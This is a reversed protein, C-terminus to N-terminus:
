AVDSFIPNSIDPIAFPAFHNLTFPALVMFLKASGSYVKFALKKYSFYGYKDFVSSSFIASALSFIRSPCSLPIKITALSTTLGLDSPGIIVLVFCPFLLDPFRSCRSHLLQCCNCSVTFCIIVISFFNKV